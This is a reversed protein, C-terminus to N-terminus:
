HQMASLKFIAECVEREKWALNVALPPDLLSSVIVHHVKLKRILSSTLIPQVSASCHRNLQPARQWNQLNQKRLVSISLLANVSRAGQHLGSSHGLVCKIINHM